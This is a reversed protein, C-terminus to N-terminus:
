GGVLGAAGVSVSASTVDVDGKAEAAVVESSIAEDNKASGDDVCSIVDEDGFGVGGFPRGSSCSWRVFGSDDSVGPVIAPIAPPAARTVAIKIPM